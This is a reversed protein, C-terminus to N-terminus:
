IKPICAIKRDHTPYTSGTGMGIEEATKVQYIKQNPKKVYPDVKDLPYYFYITQRSVNSDNPVKIQGDKVYFWVAKINKENLLIVDQTDSIEVAAYLGETETAIVEKLGRFLPTSSNYQTDDPCFSNFTNQDIFPKLVYASSNKSAGSQAYNQENGPLTFYTFFETGM